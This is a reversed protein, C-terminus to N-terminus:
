ATTRLHLPNLEYWVYMLGLLRICDVMTRVHPPNLEPLRMVHSHTLDSGSEGRTHYVKRPDCSTDRNAHITDVAGARKDGSCGDACDDDDDDDDDDVCALSVEKSRARKSTCGDGRVDRAGRETEHGQRIGGHMTTMDGGCGVGVNGTISGMNDSGGGDGSEGLHQIDSRSLRQIIVCSPQPKEHRDVWQKGHYGSRLLDLHKDQYLWVVCCTRQIGEDRGGVRSHSKCRQEGGVRRESRGGDDLTGTTINTTTTTSTTTATTDTRRPVVLEPRHRFHFCRFGPDETFDAFFRHVHVLSLM